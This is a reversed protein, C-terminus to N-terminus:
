LRVREEREDGQSLPLSFFAGERFLVFSVAGSPTSRNLPISLLPSSCTVNICKIQPEVQNRVLGAICGVKLCIKVGKTQICSQAARDAQERHHHQRHGSHRHPRERRLDAEGRGRGKLKWGWKPISVSKIDQKNKSPTSLSYPHSPSLSRMLVLIRNQSM